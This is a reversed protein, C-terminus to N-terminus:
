AGCVRAHGHIHTKTVVRRAFIPFHTKDHFLNVSKLNFYGLVPGLHVSSSGAYKEAFSAILYIVQGIQIPTIWM